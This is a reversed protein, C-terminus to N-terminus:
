RREEAWSSGFSEKYSKKIIFFNSIVTNDLLWQFIIIHEMKGWPLSIKKKISPIIVPAM